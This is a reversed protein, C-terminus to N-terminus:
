NMEILLVENEDKNKWHVSCDPKVESRADVKIVRVITEDFVGMGEVRNKFEKWTM